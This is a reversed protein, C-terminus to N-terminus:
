KRDGMDIEWISRGYRDGMDIERDYRTVRTRACRCAMFLCDPFSHDAWPPPPKARRPADSFECFSPKTGTVFLSCVGSVGGWHGCLPVVGGPQGAGSPKSRASCICRTQISQAAVTQVKQNSHPLTQQKARAPGWTSTAVSSGRETSSTQMPTGIRCTM